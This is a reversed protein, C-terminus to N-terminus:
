KPKVDDLSMIHSLTNSVATAADKINIGEKKAIAILLEKLKESHNSLIAKSSIIRGGGHHFEEEKLIKM